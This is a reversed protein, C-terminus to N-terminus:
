MSPSNGDSRPMSGDAGAGHSPGGSGMDMGGGISTESRDKPVDLRAVIEDQAPERLLVVEGENLGDTIESFLESSRGTVVKHESYGRGEPLYVCTMPGNRFVGQIPIHLANEVRGVNLVAKCRMSPKLGLEAGENLRIKVTYDRRNPDRWGGSEALVG